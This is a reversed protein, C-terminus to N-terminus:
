NTFGFYALALAILAGIAGFTWAALGLSVPEPDSKPLQASPDLPPTSPQQPASPPLTPQVQSPYVEGWGAAKLAKEFALSREEVLRGITKGTARDIKTTDGNVINRAAAHRYPNGNFDDLKAKRFFGRQSGRVAIKASIPLELAREPYRELDVGVLDKARRYNPILHTLQIQGRGFGGDRWYNAKVWPLQGKAWAKDLRSKVIADSPNQDKHSAFVTEKVPYMGGGTEWHVEGLVHAMHPLPLFPDRLGEDLLAEMGQVQRTSLSSGFLKNSKSRLEEYFKERNM